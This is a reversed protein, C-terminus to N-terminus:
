ELSPLIHVDRSVENVPGAVRTWWGRSQHGDVAVEM